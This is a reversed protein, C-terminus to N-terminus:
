AFVSAPYRGRQQRLVLNWFTAFGSAVLFWGSFATVIVGGSPSNHSYGAVILDIAPVPALYVAWILLTAMWLHRAAWGELGGGTVPRSVQRQWSLRALPGAFGAFAATAVLGIMVGLWTGTMAWLSLLLWLGLAGLWTALARGPTTSPMRVAMSAFAEEAQSKHTMM